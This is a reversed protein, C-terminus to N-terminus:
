SVIESREWDGAEAVYRPYYFLLSSSGIPAHKVNEYRIELLQTLIFSQGMKNSKTIFHLQRVPPSVQVKRNNFGRNRHLVKM